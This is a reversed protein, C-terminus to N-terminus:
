YVTGKLSDYVAKAKSNMKTSVCQVSEGREYAVYGNSELRRPVHVYEGLSVTLAISKM